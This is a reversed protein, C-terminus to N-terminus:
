IRETWDPHAYKKPILESARSKEADSLEGPMLRIGLISQFARTFSKSATGWDVEWGLASELTSASLMLKQAAVQRSKDDLFSLAKTIRTLDGILPLSGHQLVGGKQRAQASGILKKGNVTIEYASPTEFCVPNSLAPSKQHRGVPNMEVNAGLDELASLLAQAFYQYSELVNGKIHANDEPLIIAYTLEDTHLIARGGTARRVIDWGNEELAPLNADTFAQTRGLSLCPPNWAYLRLTPLSDGRVINELIAEDVAMNWAGTSPPCLVLRWTETM